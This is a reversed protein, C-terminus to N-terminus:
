HEGDAGDDYDVDFIPFLPNFELPEFFALEGIRASLIEQVRHFSGNDDTWMLLLGSRLAM